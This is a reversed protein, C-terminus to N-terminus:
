TPARRRGRPRRVGQAARRARARAGRADCGGRRWRSASRRAATAPASSAPDRRQPLQARHGGLPAADRRHRRRHRPADRRRLVDRERATLPSDGETITAAALAPDIARGGPTCPGSRPPWSARRRTRSCSAPPRRERARPAPLRAPRLHHPDADATARCSARSSARRGRHRRPRADRHRAAGRRAPARAGGRAGRRRPRGRGVVEIDDELALLSALAGRVMAQDEAILVRIMADPLPVTLRLRFGGSPGPAPRSRATARAARARAPGRARQRRARREPAARATTTSRSRPARATPALASRATAPAPQPPDVNTTGRAGGLRARDDVEAPLAAPAGALECDIGAAALATRAGDLADRSRWGATARSRRACRPSRRARTM